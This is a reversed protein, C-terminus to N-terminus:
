GSRHEPWAQILSRFDEPPAGHLLVKDAGADFLSRMYRAGTHADGVANSQEIWAPPYLDRMRRLDDMERSVGEDGLAGAPNKAQEAVTQRITSATAPDWDNVQVLLDIMPWMFYTNMRRVIYNLM